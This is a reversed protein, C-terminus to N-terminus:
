EFYRMSSKKLEATSYLLSYNTIGTARSLRKAIEDCYERSQGHVVTFLNYPWGPRRPRRYCHTVEEFGAMIRGTESVKEEPVDWVVMANAVFGLDFHRVTAGFRRIIGDNIFSKVKDILEDETMELKEAMAQFPRSVLPLGNQLVRIIKIDLETLM